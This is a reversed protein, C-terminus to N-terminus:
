VHARGIKYQYPNDWPDRLGGTILPKPFHESPRALIALGEENTPYRNTEGHFTDLAKMFTAIEDRATNQKAKILYGGLNVTVAGALLGIIVIVIMLEVLSFARHSHQATAGRRRGTPEREYSM